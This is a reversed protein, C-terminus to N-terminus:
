YTFYIISMLMMLCLNYVDVDVYDYDNPPYENQITSHKKFNNTISRFKLSM